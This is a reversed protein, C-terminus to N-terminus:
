RELLAMLGLLGGWHYFSDSNKVGCGEGTDSNYNEHIHRKERWEKLLLAKSKEVLDKRAKELGPYNRLGLYVLFNMPAWIRGRWYDQDAYAPDIWISTVLSATYFNESAVSVNLLVECNTDSGPSVEIEFPLAANNLTEGANIQAATVVFRDQDRVACQGDAGAVPGVREIESQSIEADCEIQALQVTRHLGNGNFRERERSRCCAVPESRNPM